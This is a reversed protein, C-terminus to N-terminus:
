IIFSWYKIRYHSLEDSSKRKLKTESSRSYSEKPSNCEKVSASNDSRDIKLTMLLPKKDNNQESSKKPSNIKHSNHENTFTNIIENPISNKSLNERSNHTGESLKNSDKSVINSEKVKTQIDTKNILNQVGKRSNKQPYTNEENLAQIILSNIREEYNPIKMSHSINKNKSDNAVIVGSFIDPKSDVENLRSKTLLTNSKELTLVENELINVTNSLQKKQELVATLETLINSKNTRFSNLTQSSNSTEKRQSKNMLKINQNELLSIHKQLSVEKIHLERNHAVMEKGKELLERSTSAKIGLEYLRSKLLTVGKELLGKIHRELCNLQNMLEVNRRREDDIQQKLIDKHQPTQMYNIFQLIQQKWTDLLESLDPSVSFLSTDRIVVNPISTVRCSTDLKRDVCGPAPELRHGAASSISLVTQAHLLDLGNFRISKKSKKSGITGNKRPRGRQRSGPSDLHSQKRAARKIAASVSEPYKRPRGVRNYKKKRPINETEENSEGGSSGNHQSGSSQNTSGKSNNCWESWAKRTWKPFTGSEDGMEKNSDNSSSDTSAISEVKPSKKSLSRSDDDQNQNENFM